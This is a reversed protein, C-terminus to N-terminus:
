FVKFERHCKAPSTAERFAMKPSYCDEQAVGGLSVCPQCMTDPVADGSATVIRPRKSFFSALSDVFVPSAYVVDCFSLLFTNILAQVDSLDSYNSAPYVLLQPDNGNRLLISRTAVGHIDNPLIKTRQPASAVLFLATNKARRLLNDTPTERRHATWEGDVNRDIDRNIGAVIQDFEIRDRYVFVGVVRRGAFHLRRFASIRQWIDYRPVFLKRVLPGFLDDKTFWQSVTDHTFPSHWLLSGVYGYRPPVEVWTTTDDTINSCFLRHLPEQHVFQEAGWGHVDYREFEPRMYKDADYTWNFPPPEFLQEHAAHQWSPKDPLISRSWSVLVARKLLMGLLVASAVAKMSNQVSSAMLVSLHVFRPKAVRDAIIDDHLQRWEAFAREFREHMQATPPTCETRGRHQTGHAMYTFDVALDAHQQPPAAPRDFWAPGLADSWYTVNHEDAWVRSVRLDDPSLALSAPPPTPLPRQQRALLWVLLAIAVLLAARVSAVLLPRRPPARLAFFLTSNIKM